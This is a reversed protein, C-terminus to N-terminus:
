SKITTDNAYATKISCFSFILLYHISQSKREEVWALWREGAYRLGRQLEWTMFHDEKTIRPFIKVVLRSPAKASFNGEFVFQFRLRPKALSTQHSSVM